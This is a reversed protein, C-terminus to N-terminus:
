EASGMAADIAQQEEPSLELESSGGSVPKAYLRAQERHLISSLVVGSGQSDLLAISSSQRGTMEGMADYRVVGCQTIAGRLRRDLGADGGELRAVSREVERSLASLRQDLEGAHEVLTRNGDEGVILQQDARLRRLRRATMLTALLALLALAAAGVAILGTTDSDV